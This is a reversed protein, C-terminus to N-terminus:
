YYQRVLLDYTGACEGMNEQVGVWKLENELGYDKIFENFMETYKIEAEALSDAVLAQCGEFTIVENKLKNKSKPQYESYDYELLENLKKIVEKKYNAM